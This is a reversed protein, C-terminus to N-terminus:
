LGSTNSQRPQRREAKSCSSSRTPSLGASRAARRAVSPWREDRGAAGLLGGHPRLAGCIGYSGLPAGRCRLGGAVRGAVPMPGGRRALGGVALWLPGAGRRSARVRAVLRARHWAPSRARGRDDRHGAGGAAAFLAHGIVQTCDRRRPVFTAALLVHTSDCRGCRGRRPRLLRGGYRMRVDRARTHGWPALPAGCDPCPIRGALLAPEIASEGIGVVLVGCEKLCEVPSRRVGRM